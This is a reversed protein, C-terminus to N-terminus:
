IYSMITQKLYKDKMLDAIKKVINRRIELEMPINPDQHAENIRTGIVFHIIDSDMMAEVIKRAPNGGTVPDIQNATLYESVKGLTIIGETILSVGEMTSSPPIEDTMSKMDVQIDRKLERAVINATTGGSIISKGDFDRIMEALGRDREPNFPPGTAIMLKRPNRFYISGCTIDDKAKFVDNKLSEKVVKRALDNSSIEPEQALIKRLFARVNGEGWGLPWSNTGLGSQTVGDSFFILRDGPKANFCCSTIKNRNVTGPNFEIISEELSAIENERILVFHPNDYELIQVTGKEDIDVITFTAYSIQRESCVPLTRSILEATQLAPLNKEIARMAMNATLSSLVNARIGSGLGDSLISIMRQRGEAKRSLFADGPASEGDKKVQYYGVDLFTNTM